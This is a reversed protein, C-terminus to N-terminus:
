YMKLPNRVLFSDSQLICPLSLVTIPLQFFTLFTSSKKKENAQNIKRLQYEYYEM